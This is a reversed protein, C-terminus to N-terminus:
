RSARKDGFRLKLLAGTYTFLMKFFSSKSEGSDRSRYNAPIEIVTMKERQAYFLLRFFYEGYGYFIADFPLKMLKQREVVFFGGLNDQIQTRLILRIVLNYLFSALYHKVSQMQGGSCFRSGSVIDFCESIHLLVPIEVPDHTFDTDMVIVKDGKAAEIGARISKAFGRDVTRLIPKVKPNGAFTDRVLPYTGDPSNDDVVLIEYDWPAPIHKCIENVLGVINGSENYTPLIVSVLM